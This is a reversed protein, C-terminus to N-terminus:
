YWRWRWFVAFGVAGIGVALFVLARHWREPLAVRGGFIQQHQRARAQPAPAAPAGYPSGHRRAFRLAPRARSRAVVARARAGAPPHPTARPGGSRADAYLRAM